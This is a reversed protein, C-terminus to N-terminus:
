SSSVGGKQHGACHAHMGAFFTVSWVVSSVNYNKGLQEQKTERKRERERERARTRTRTRTRAVCARVCVCVCLKMRLMFAVFRDRCFLVGDQECELKSFWCVAGPIPFHQEAHKCLLITKITRCM